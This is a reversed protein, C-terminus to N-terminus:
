LRADGREFKLQPIDNFQARFYFARTRHFRSPEINFTANWDHFRRQISLLEATIRDNSFLPEEPARLNYNISYDLRWRRAWGFGFATQLWSRKTTSVTSRRQSYYHGLRFNWGRAQRNIDSGLGSQYGYGGGGSSGGYSSGGYGGGGFGAGSLGSGYQGGGYSAAASSGGGYSQGRGATGDLSDPKTGGGSFRLSTNVEFQKLRPMKQLRDDEDYFESTLSLRTDFRSSAGLTLRSVLDGLPRQKDEFDYGSSLNLQALRIKKEDEGSLWKGWLTNDLRLDLRRRQDLDGSRGGVGLTGGTDARTAQYNFGLSPKLVHRLAALPGLQPQFLGYFTQSLSTGLSLRDTRVGEFRLTDKRLDADRWATSLSPTLNFWDAPKFQSSLRLSLDAQTTETTDASTGRRTNRLRASSDYFIRGYWPTSAAGTKGSSEKKDPAWLAKRTTRFNVDPLIRTFTGSDLNETQSANISLSRGSVRWRKSYTLNSRLTRNLRDELDLSNDRNFSKNSQFAGSARLSADRGMQQSHSFNTRWELQTSAGSQRNEFQTEIRGNWHYRRAYNFRLRGLWGSSQRLDAGLTADWYDSPALYYGLNRLEWESQGSGFSVPRRGFSPTLLGSQRDERLSFVFFPVWFLRKEKVRLYVPRAIAMEGALVKIRPSFFDFHPHDLDCTTYSGHHVHFEATSLANIREGAYYGKKYAIRGSAIRGRGSEMDYLIREGKLVEDGRKLLPWGVVVGNSDLLAQAEIERQRRRLVMRGAELTAKKHTVLANGVLIISDGRALVVTSDAKYSFGELQEIEALLDRAEQLGPAGEAASAPQGAILMGAAIFYWLVLRRLMVYRRTQGILSLFFFSLSM